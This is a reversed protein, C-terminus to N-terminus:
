VFKDALALVDDAGAMQFLDALWVGLVYHLFLNDLDVGEERTTNAIRDTGEEGVDPPQGFGRCRAAFYFNRQFGVM